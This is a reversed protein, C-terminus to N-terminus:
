WLDNCSCNENKFHYFRLPDSVVIIVRVVKSMYKIANHCDGCIRLNKYVM